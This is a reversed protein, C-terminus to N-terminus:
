AIYLAEGLQLPPRLGALLTPKIPSEEAYLARSMLTNEQLRGRSCLSVQLVSLVCARGNWWWGQSLTLILQGGGARAEM